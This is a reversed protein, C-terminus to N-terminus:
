TTQYHQQRTVLPYKLAQTSPVLVSSLTTNSLIVLLLLSSRVMVPSCFINQIEKQTSCPSYFFLSQQFLALCLFLLSLPCNFGLRAAIGEPSLSPSHSDGCLAALCLECVWFNLASPLLIPIVITSWYFSSFFVLDIKKSLRLHVM